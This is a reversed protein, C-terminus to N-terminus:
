TRVPVLRGAKCTTSLPLSWAFASENVLGTIAALARLFAYIRERHGLTPSAATSNPNAGSVAM